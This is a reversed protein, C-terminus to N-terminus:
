YPLTERLLRTIYEGDWAFGIPSIRRTYVYLLATMAINGLLGAVFIGILGLDSESTILGGATPAPFLVYVVGLVGLFGVIKGLTVSFFSFETRLHAQLVSLISSNILGFLTFVGTIAICILAIPSDYGPLALAILLSVVIIVFGFLTRISMISGSIVELRKQDGIYRSMERVSMTYLGLDAIVSFISLYTYIKSYLGYQDVGLYTTLIKILFISIAATAIKGAIQALTNTLVQRSAMNNKGLSLNPLAM